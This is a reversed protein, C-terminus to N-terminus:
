WKAERCLGKPVFMKTMLIFDSSPLDGFEFAPSGFVAFGNKRYFAIAKENEKGVSLLVSTKPYYSLVAQLFEKAVGKGQYAPDIMFRTLILLPEGRYGLSELLDIAKAESKSIPFFAEAVDHEATASGIVRAGDKIVYLRGEKQDLKFDEEMPYEDNWFSKGELKIGEKVRRLCKQLSPLDSEKCLCVRHM